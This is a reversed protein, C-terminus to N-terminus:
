VHARGIELQTIAMFRAQAFPSQSQKVLTSIAIQNWDLVVDARAAIPSCTMLAAVAVATHLRSM